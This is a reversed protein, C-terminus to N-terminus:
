DRGAAAAALAGTARWPLVAPNPILAAALVEGAREALELAETSHGRALAIRAAADHVLAQAITDQRAADTEEVIGLVEDARDLDGRDIHCWAAQACAATIFQEWGHHRADLAAELDALAGMIRGLYYRGYSRGYSVNAFGM